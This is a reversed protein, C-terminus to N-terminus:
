ATGHDEGGISGAILGQEVLFAHSLRWILPLREVLRHDGDSMLHMQACEAPCQVVFETVMRWDVDTDNKGQFILTPTRYLSTLRDLEYTRLDEIMRWDLEYSGLEHHLWARRTRQWEEFAQEGLRRRVGGELNFGPAIYIAAAVSEPHMAAYWAAVGGGMSSGFLILRRFGETRLHEAMRGLDQLNRTVTMETITGGSEGHGQFDFSCFALGAASLRDAFVEAKHSARSSAFGHCYLVCLDAAAPRTPRLLEYALHSPNGSDHIPLAPM